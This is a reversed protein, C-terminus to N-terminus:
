VLCARAARPCLAESLESRRRLWSGCRGSRLPRFQIQSGRFADETWGYRCEALPRVARGGVV